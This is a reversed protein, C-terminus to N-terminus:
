ISKHESEMTAGDLVKQLTTHAGTRDSSMSCDIVFLIHGLLQVRGWYWSRRGRGLTFGAWCRRFPWRAFLQFSSVLKVESASHCFSDWMVVLIVNFKSTAYCSNFHTSQVLTCLVTTVDTSLHTSQVLTCLVTTVDTSLHTSQVLTCAVTTVDTSLTYVASSYM